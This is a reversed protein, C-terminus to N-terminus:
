EGADAYHHVAVGERQDLAARRKWSVLALLPVLLAVWRLVSDANWAAGIHAVLRIWMLLATTPLHLVTAFPEGLTGAVLGAPLGWMMVLGAVPDALANTVLGVWPLFGFIALQLPAIALQAAISYGLVRQFWPSGPLWATIREGADVMGACAVVSLLFGISGVLFPDIVLLATVAIGLSRVLTVPRGLFSAYLIVAAMAEARLVSPEWRTLAGFVLLVGIGGMFRGFLGFSRLFPAALVLVFAVNAGSVATLHALGSERFEEVSEESQARDDGYVLGTFLARDETNMSVSGRLLLNRIGNSLADSWSTRHLPTLSTATITGAVHRRRLSAARKGSLERVIGRVHLRDGAQLSAVKERTDATSWLEYHRSQLTVEARFASGSREPDAVMKAEANVFNPLPERLAKWQEACHASIAFALVVIFVRQRKALLTIIAGLGLPLFPLSIPSYAAVAALIAMVAIRTDSV